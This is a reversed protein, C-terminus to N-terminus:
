KLKKKKIKRMPLISLKGRHKYLRTRRRSLLIETQKTGRTTNTKTKLTKVTQPSGRRRVVYYYTIINHRVTAASISLSNPKDVGDRTEKEEGQRLDAGRARRPPGM